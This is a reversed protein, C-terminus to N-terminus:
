SSSESSTEAPNTEAPETETATTESSTDALDSSTDALSTNPSDASANESPNSFASFSASFSLTRVAWVVRQLASITVLLTMLGFLWTLGQPFLFFLCFFAFTETGEILGDPMTVSTTERPRNARRASKELLAALYMWSGANVYFSALLLALSVASVDGAFRWWLAIPILAYVTLDSLIDLYGGLDSQRQWYRALHGDIGDLIWSLVWLVLGATLWGFLTVGASALGLGFSLLTVTLPAVDLRKVLPELGAEKVRRLYKDVM